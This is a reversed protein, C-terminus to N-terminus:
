APGGKTGTYALMDRLTRDLDYEPAWGLAKILSIDARQYPVKQSGKRERVCQRALGSLDLLRNLVTQLKVARGSGVNYARGPEGKEALLMYARAADRVDVLDRYASLDLTDIKRIKGTRYESIRKVFNGCALKDTQGPGILNFIRATVVNLGYMRFFLDATCTQLLKSAGYMSVPRPPCSEGIGKKGAYGYEASSGANVVTVKKRYPLLGALFVHLMAANATLLDEPGVGHTVGALHFCTIRTAADMHPLLRAPFGRLLDVRIFEDVDPVSRKGGAADVGAIVAGPAKKRLLELLVRGTFGAAGTVIVLEKSKM